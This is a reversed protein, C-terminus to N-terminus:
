FRFAFGISPQFKHFTEAPAAQIVDFGEGVAFTRLWAVSREDLKYTTRGLDVRILTRRSPYIEVVGGLDFAFSSRAIPHYCALPSPIQLPCVTDKLSGFAYDAKQFRIFGPRAKGFVGVRKFRKGAKVGFLGQIKRGSERDSAGPFINIEAEFALYKSVNYGFRGGLGEVTTRQHSRTLTPSNAFTLSHVTERFFTFQGGVEFKKEDSQSNAIQVAGLVVAACLLTQKLLLYDEV